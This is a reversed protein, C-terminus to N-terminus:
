VADERVDSMIHDLFLRFLERESTIDLKDYVMRKRNKVVQHSIGMAKAIAANHYGRLSLHVIQLERPALNGPSYTEVASDFLLSPPAGRTASLADSVQETQATPNANPTGLHTQHISNALALYTRLLLVTRVSFQGKARDWCLVLTAGNSDPLMVVIDDSVGESTLLDHYTQFEREAVTHDRFLEVGLQPGDLCLRYFPDFRYFGSLYVDFSHFDGGERFLCVPPGNPGYRFIYRYNWHLLSSLAELLQFQFDAEGRHDLARSLLGLTVESSRTVMERAKALRERGSRRVRGRRFLGGEAYTTTGGVFPAHTSPDDHMKGTKEM